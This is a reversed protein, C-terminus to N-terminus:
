PPSQLVGALWSLGSSDAVRVYDDDDIVPLSSAAAAAPAAAAPVEAPSDAMIRDSQRSAWATSLLYCVGPTLIVAFYWACPWSLVQLVCLDRHM